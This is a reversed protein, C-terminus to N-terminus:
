KIGSSGSGRMLMILGRILRMLGRILFSTDKEGKFFFFRGDLNLLVERLSM